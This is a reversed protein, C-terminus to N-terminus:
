RTSAYFRLHLALGEIEAGLSRFWDVARIKKGGAEVLVFASCSAGTARCHKAPSM